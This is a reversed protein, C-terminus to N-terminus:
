EKSFQQHKLKEKHARIVYQSLGHVGVSLACLNWL